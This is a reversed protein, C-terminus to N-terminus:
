ALLGRPAPEGLCALRWALGERSEGPTSTVWTDTTGPHLILLGATRGGLMGVSGVHHCDGHLTLVLGLSLHDGLEQVPGLYPGGSPTTLFLDRLEM